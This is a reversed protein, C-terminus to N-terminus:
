KYRKIDKRKVGSYEKQKIILKSGGKYRFKKQQYQEEVYKKRDSILKFGEPYSNLHKQVGSITAQAVKLIAGIEKQTIDAQLHSAILIRRGMKLQEEQTMLSNMIETVEEGNKAALFADRLSNLAKYIDEKTLHQYRRM